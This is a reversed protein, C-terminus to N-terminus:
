PSIWCCCATCHLSTCCLISSHAKREGACVARAHLPGGAGLLDTPATLHSPFTTFSAHATPKPLLCHAALESLAPLSAAIWAWAARCVAAAPLCHRTCLSLALQLGGPALGQRRLACDQGRHLPLLPPGQRGGVQLYLIHHPMPHSTTRSQMLHFPLQLLVPVVCRRSRCAAAAPLASQTISLSFAALVRGAMSPRRTCTRRRCRSPPLHAALQHKALSSARAASRLLM